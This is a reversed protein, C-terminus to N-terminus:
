SPAGHEDYGIIDDDLRQDTVPLARYRVAAAQLEARLDPGALDRQRRLRERLAETVAQTLSEGTVAALARALEDAEDSKISLAVPYFRVESELLAM